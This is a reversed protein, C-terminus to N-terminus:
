CRLQITKGVRVRSFHSFTNGVDLVHLGDGEKIADSFELYFCGLGTLNKGYDLM